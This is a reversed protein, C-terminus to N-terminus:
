EMLNKAIKENFGEDVFLEKGLLFGILKKQPFGTTEGEVCAVCRGQWEIAFGASLKGFVHQACWEGQFFNMPILFAFLDNVTGLTTPVGFLVVLNECGGVEDGGAHFM